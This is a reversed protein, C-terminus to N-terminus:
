GFMGKRTPFCYNCAMQANGRHPLWGRLFSGNRGNNNNNPSDTKGGPKRDEWAIYRTADAMRRLVEMRRVHGNWKLMEVMITKAGSAVKISGKVHENRINDKRTVGCMWRLM